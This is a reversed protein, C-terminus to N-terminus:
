RRLGIAEATTTGSASAGVAGKFRRCDDAESEVDFRGRSETSALLREGGLRRSEGCGMSDGLDLGSPLSSSPACFLRLLLTWSSFFRPCLNNPPSRLVSLWLVGLPCCFRLSSISFRWCSFTLCCFSASSAPLLSFNASKFAIRLASCTM